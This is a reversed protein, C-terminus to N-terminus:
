GPPILPALQPLLYEEKLAQVIVDFEGGNDYHGYFRWVPQIYLPSGDLHDVQWHPNTVYYMLEVKEITLAPPVYDLQSDTTEDVTYIQDATITLEIPDGNKPNIAMASSFVQLTPYGGITQDPVSLAELIVLDGENGMLVNAPDNGPTIQVYITGDEATFLLAPQGDINSIQQKGRLLQFQLEPFPIEFREVEVIPTAYREDYGQVTGWIEIPLHQYTELGQLNDGTLTMMFTYSDGSIDSLIYEVRQSGDIQNYSTINLIGRLGEIKQGIDSQVVGAGPIILTQGVYIINENSLNNAQALESVAIDFKQAIFALTDGEQVIYNGDGLSPTPAAPPFAVPTGSLNLMYFGTGGGGGGGSGNGNNNARDDILTWEYINDPKRIGLVFANEYPMPLDAPVDPQIILQEGQETQFIVQGNERTLNGVIGDQMYDSIKWSEVNFEEVGSEEIFQGTAQVFSNIRLTEFGSTNGIVTYGDIQNFAPKSPDLAPTSYAYGYITITENKPYTYRWERTQVTPSSLASEIKGSTINDDLMKQLAEEASIINYTQDNFHEYDMLNAEVQLVQGNEDLIVKMPRSSFFEYRMSFGEPSLPEVVYGGFLEGIAVRHPFDFGHSALFENITAEANPDTHGGLNNFARAMNATYTFVLDTSISLSQKGDTIFYDNTNTIPNAQLYVEGQIGLQDALARASDITAPQDGKLLYINAEEPVDPLPANLDLTTGRWDYGGQNPIPTPQTEADDPAPTGTIDQTSKINAAPVSTPTPAVTSIAWSMLFALAVLSATWALTSLVQKREFHPWGPKPNSPAHAQTLEHELELMFHLSPKTAEATQTLLENIDNTENISKNNM